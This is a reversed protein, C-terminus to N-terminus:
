KKENREEQFSPHSKELAERLHTFSCHTYIQTTLISTHGLLEQISRLDAGGDLMATAMSHRIMHPHVRGLGAKVGLESIIRRVSRADIPTGPGSKAEVLTESLYRSLATQAETRTRLEYDGLRVSRMVRKGNADTERWYGRWVGHEDQSVGGQQKRPGKGVEETLFLPGTHRGALYHELVAATKAGFLVIREKDGKGLVKLSRGAWDIAEVRTSIVESIRCGTAWMFDVIALVRPSEAANLLQQIQAPTLWHPLPRKVKRRSVLAAPSSKVAGIRVAFDFFSRVAYLRQGQTSSSVKRTYLFHQWESIERHTVDAMSLGMTFDLFDKITARYSSVTLPSSNATELNLLYDELLKENEAHHNLTREERLQGTPM